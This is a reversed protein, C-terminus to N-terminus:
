GRYDVSIRNLTLRPLLIFQCVTKWHNQLIDSAAQPALYKGFTYEDIIRDDNTSDFISPTIWPQRITLWDLHYPTCTGM